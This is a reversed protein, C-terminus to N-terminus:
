HPYNEPSLFRSFTPTDSLRGTAQITSIELSLGAAVKNCLYEALPESDGLVLQVFMVNLANSLFKAFNKRVVTEISCRWQSRRSIELTVKFHLMRAVQKNEIVCFPVPGNWSDIIFSKAFIFSVWVKHFYLFGLSELCILSFWVFIATKNGSAVCFYRFSM